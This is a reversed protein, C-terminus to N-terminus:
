LNVAWTPAVRGVHSNYAVLQGSENHRAFCIGWADLEAPYGTPAHGIPLEEVLGDIFVDPGSLHAFFEGKGWYETDETTARGALDLVANGIALAQDAPLCVPSYTSQRDNAFHTVEQTAPLTVIQM